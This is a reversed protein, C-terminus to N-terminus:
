ATMGIKMISETVGYGWFQFGLPLEVKQKQGILGKKIGNQRENIVEGIVRVKGKKWSKKCFLDGKESIMETLGSAESVVTVSWTEIEVLLIADVGERM